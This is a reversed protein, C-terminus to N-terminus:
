KGCCNKYKKGSGCPCADNRGVKPGTRVPKAKSVAEVAESVVDSPKPAAAAEGSFASSSGYTTKQPINRVFNEFALMSSASRFINHCIESKINVMLGEFMKFADAKYEILPDRQGYARLGISNRLSDMTYLHEQWLKDIASLITYRELSRLAEPKEFTAKLEYAKQVEGIIFRAVGYQAANFGNFISGEPPVETGAEGAKIIEEEPMGLPFNLNVWDALPRVNWDSIEQKSSTNDDVKQVVVEEMVEM